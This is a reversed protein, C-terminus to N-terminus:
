KLTETIKDLNIYSRESADFISEAKEQAEKCMKEADKTKPGMTRRIDSEIHSKKACHLASIQFEAPEYQLREAVPTQNAIKINFNTEGCEFECNYGMWTRKASDTGNFYYQENVYIPKQTYKDHSLGKLQTFNGNKSVIYPKDKGVQKLYVFEQKGGYVWEKHLIGQDFTKLVVKDSGPFKYIREVGGNALTKETVILEDASVGLVRAINIRPQKAAAEKAAKEAAEAAKIAEDKAKKAAEIAAQERATIARSYASTTGKPFFRANNADDLTHLYERHNAPSIKYMDSVSHPLKVDEFVRDQTAHQPKEWHRFKRVLDKHELEGAENLEKILTEEHETMGMTENYKKNITIRDGGLVGAGKERLVSKERHIALGENGGQGFFFKGDLDSEYVKTETFISGDAKKGEFVRVMKRSGGSSLFERESVTMGTARDIYTKTKPTYAGAEQIVKKGSRNFLKVVPKLLNLTVNLKGM